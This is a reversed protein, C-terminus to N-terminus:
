LKRGVPNMMENKSGCLSCAACDAPSCEIKESQIEQITFKTLAMSFKRQIDSQVSVTDSEYDFNVKMPLQIWIDDYLPHVAKVPRMIVFEERPTQALIRNQVTSLGTLRGEKDFQLSNSDAHIGIAEPDYATLKGIPTNVLVSSFPEVSELKGTEYMSFGTRAELKGAPTMVEIHEGPYLTISKICGSRFFCIGSLYATFKAFGLEFSLPVGCKKEEEESWFGSIKGDTIFVRHIEGSPYFTIYESPLTGIPTEVETQEELVVAKTLGSEFFELAPKNKRRTTETFAPILEGAYTLILNKENLKVSKLEGTEYTEFYTVGGLIGHEIQLHKSDIALYNVM